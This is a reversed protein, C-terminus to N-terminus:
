KGDEAAVTSAIRGLGEIEVEVTDGERLWRRPNLTAGIGSPTGTLIVDGPDLTMIESVYAVLHGVGFIMEGLLADQRLESNVWTRLRLSELHPIGDPTTIWPGMPAFGDFTKGSLMERTRFQYDRASVDNAVAFGGVHAMADSEPIYRGGVGIYVALEGEYDIRHTVRPICVPDYPGSVANGFKAFLMPFDPIERDAEDAHSPYNLGVGIIKGPDPVPAVLRVGDSAIPQMTRRLAAVVDPRALAAITDPAGLVDRVSRIGTDLGPAVGAEPPLPLIEEGDVLAPAHSGTADLYTALRVM